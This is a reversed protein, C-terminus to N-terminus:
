AITVEITDPKFTSAEIYEFQWDFVSQIETAPTIGTFVAELILKNTTAGAKQQVVLTSGNPVSMNSILNLTSALTSFGNTNVFVHYIRSYSAPNGLSDLNYYNITLVGTLAQMNTTAGTSNTRDFSLLNKQLTAPTSIYKSVFKKHQNSHAFYLNNNRGLKKNNIGNIFMTEPGDSDIYWDNTGFNVIGDSVFTYPNAGAGYTFHCGDFVTSNSSGSENLLVTSSGEFYCGKFNANTTGNQLDITARGVTGNAEFRCGIFNNVSSGNSPSFYVSSWSHDNFECNIFDNLNAVGNGVSAIGYVSTQFICNIFKNIEFDTTSFNVSSQLDMGVNEFICSQTGNSFQFAYTGGRWTMNKVQLGIMNQGGKNVCQPANLVVNQNNIICGTRTNGFM